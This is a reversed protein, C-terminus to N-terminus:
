PEPFFPIWEDSQGLQHTPLRHQQIRQIILSRSLRFPFHRNDGIPLSEDDILALSRALQDPHLDSEVLPYRGDIWVLEDCHTRLGAPLLRNRVRSASDKPEGLSVVRWGSAKLNAVARQADPTLQEPFAILLAASSPSQASGANTAPSEFTPPETIPPADASEYPSPDPFREALFRRMDPGFAIDDFNLFTKNATERLIDAYLSPRYHFGAYSNESALLLPEFQECACAHNFIALQALPGAFRDESLLSHFRNAAALIRGKSLPMPVHTEYNLRPLGLSVLLDYTRWLADRYVGHGRNSTQDDLNEIYRVRAAAAPSFDRLLIYDDCMWLFEAPLRPHIAACLMMLFTNRLPTKYGPLWAISDHALHEVLGTDSTIWAPRDGFIWVKGLWPAHRALSRLSYRLEMDGAASHRFIYVADM